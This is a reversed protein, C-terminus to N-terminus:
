LYAYPSGKGVLLLTLRYFRMTVKELLLKRKASVPAVLVKHNNYM